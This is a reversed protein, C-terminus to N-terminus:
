ILLAPSAAVTGRLPQGMHESPWRYGVCVLGPRRVLCEDAEIASSASAFWSLVAPEPNNFGHVMVVLNPDPAARLHEAIQNIATTPDIPMLQEPVPERSPRDDVNIPASSEILYTPIKVDRVQYARFLNPM